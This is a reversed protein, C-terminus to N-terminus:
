KVIVKCVNGDAKVLYIGPALPIRSDGAHVNAAVCRMGAATFIEIFSDHSSSVTLCGDSAILSLGEAVPTMIGSHSIAATFCRQTAVGDPYVAEVAYIYDNDPLKLWDADRVPDATACADYILSHSTDNDKDEKLLRYVNYTVAPAVAESDPSVHAASIRILLNVAGDDDSLPAYAGGLQDIIYCGPLHSGDESLALTSEAGIAVLCGYPAYLPEDMIDQIFFENWANEENPYNEQSMLLSQPQGQENLAYIYLNVYSVTGTSCEGSHWMIKDIMLPGDFQKGLLYNGGTELESVSAPTGNDAAIDYSFNVPEWYIVPSNEDLRTWASAVPNHIAEITMNVSSNDPDAAFDLSHMGKKYGYAYITFSANDAAYIKDFSFNGQNDAITKHSAWGSFNVSAGPVPNGLQDSVTGSLRCSPRPAINIDLNGKESKELSTSASGSLYTYDAPVVSIDYTDAPLWNFHYHGAVDTIADTMKSDISVCAGAVAAGQCSVTGSLSAGGNTDLKLRLCPLMSSKLMERPSIIGTSNVVIATRPIDPFNQAHYTVRIGTEPDKIKKTLIALNGGAYPFPESLTITLRNQGSPFSAKGSFVCIMDDEALYDNMVHSHSTNAMYVQVDKDLLPAGPNNFEWSIEKILGGEVGLEEQTYISEAFSYIDDFSFPFFGPDSDHEGFKAIAEGENLFIVEFPASINNVNNVDGEKEVKARLHKVRGSMPTWTITCEKSEGPAITAESTTSALVNDNDDILSLSFGSQTETGNNFVTVTYDYPSELSPLFEGRIPASIALDVAGVPEIELSYVNLYMGMWSGTYCQMGITYDGTEEVTIVREITENSSTIGTQNFIEQLNQSEPTFDTGLSIKFDEPGFSGATGINCKLKYSMDKEMHIPMTILWDSGAGYMCSFQMAGDKLAWTNNDENADVILFQSREAPNSFQPQWPATIAPGAIVTKSDCGDGEGMHNCPVVTYSYQNAQPINSDTFSTATIGETVYKDPHRIIKYSLKSPDLTAGNCDVSPAQWTLVTENGSATLTIDSVPAPVDDGVHVSIFRSAGRNEGEYCTFAYTVDTDQPVSTDTWRGDDGPTVNSFSKVLKGERRIELTLPNSLNSGDVAVAPAKWSFTVNEDEILSTLESVQGPASLGVEAYPIHLAGLLANNEVKHREILAGTEPDIQAIWTDDELDLFSWYLKGSDRDFEMSQVEDSSASLGTSGIPTAAGTKKDIRHLTGSSNMAYLNGWLDCALAMFKDTLTAISTYTGSPTSICVLQNPIPSGGRTYLIGYLNSTSLDYTMDTCGYNKNSSKLQEGTLPNIVTFKQGLNGSSDYSLMLWYNKEAYAGGMLFYSIPAINTLATGTELDFAYLGPTLTSASGTLFGMAEKAQLPPAIASICLALLFSLHKRM